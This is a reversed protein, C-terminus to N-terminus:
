GRSRGAGPREGRHEGPQLAQGGASGGGVKRASRSGARGRTACLGPGASRPGQRAGAARSTVWHDSESAEQKGLGPM